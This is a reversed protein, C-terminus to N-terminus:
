RSMGICRYKAPLESIPELALGGVQFPTAVDVDGQWLRKTIAILVDGGRIIARRAM